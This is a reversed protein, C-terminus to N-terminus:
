SKSGKILEDMFEKEPWRNFRQFLVQHNSALTHDRYEVKAVGNKFESMLTSLNTEWQRQQLNWDDMSMVHKESLSPIDPHSGMAIFKMGKMNVWAFAVGQCNETALSYLPLQPEGPREDVWLKKLLGSTNTKYDILLLANNSIDDSSIEDIRDIVLSLEVGELIFQVSKELAVITFDRRNEELELWRSLHLCLQKKELGRFRKKDLLPHNESSLAHEVSQNILNERIKGRTQHLWARNAQGNHLANQWFFLLSRHILNGRTIRPLGTEWEQLAKANLRYQCFADSPNEAQAKILQSGGRAKSLTYVPGMADHLVEQAHCQKLISLYEHETPNDTILLNERDPRQDHSFFHSMSQPADDIWQPCSIVIESASKMLEKHLADCYDLERSASCHPMRHDMQWRIPLLPHPKPTPPFIQSTMGCIWLAEFHLGSGELLGLIQIPSDDSEAHFLTNQCLQRLIELLRSLKIEGLIDDLTICIDLLAQWHSMQQYEVSDLRRVGPWEMVMLTKQIESVWRSPHCSSPYQRIIDQLAKIKQTLTGEPPLEALLEYPSFNSRASVRLKKEIQVREEVEDIYNSWFVSHLIELIDNLSTDGKGLTLLLMASHILPQKILPEAASINFPPTYRPTEPLGYQPEFVELFIREVVKLRTNLDPIIIGISRENLHLRKELLKSKSWRAAAYIEADPSELTQTCINSDITESHIFRIEKFIQDLIKRLLPSLEGFGTLVVSPLSRDPHNEFYQGVTKFARYPTTCQQEKIWREFLSLSQKLLASDPDQPLERYDIMWQCLLDDATSVLEAISEEPMLLHHNMKNMIKQWVLRIEFASLIKRDTLHSKALELLWDEAAYVPPHDLVIQSNELSWAQKIKEAMRRNPTLLLDGAQLATRLPQIRYLTGM